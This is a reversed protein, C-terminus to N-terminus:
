TQFKGNLMMLPITWGFIFICENDLFMTYIVSNTASVQIVGCLTTKTNNKKHRFFHDGNVEIRDSKALFQKTSVEGVGARPM